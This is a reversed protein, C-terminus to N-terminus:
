RDRLHYVTYMDTKVTSTLRSSLSNIIDKNIGLNRNYCVIYKPKEKHIYELIENSDEDHVILANKLLSPISLVIYHSEPGVERYDMLVKDDKDLHYKLYDAVLMADSSCMPIILGKMLYCITVAIFSFMAMDKFKFRSTARGLGYISLPIMLTGFSISYLYDKSIYMTATGCIFFLLLCSFIAAYYKVIRNGRFTFFLGVIVLLYAVQGFSDHLIMQWYFLRKPLTFNWSLFDMSVNAYKYSLITARSNLWLLPFILTIICFLIRHGWRKDREYSLLIPIFLVFLWAEYRLMSAFILFVASILLLKANHGLIYKFFFYFSCLLFFLFIIESLSVVSCLIHIPYFILLCLALNAIREGFTIHILKYFPILSLIGFIFSIFKPTFFPNNYIKLGIGMLYFHLPLWDPHPTKFSINDLWDIALFVRAIADAKCCNNSIVLVYLRLMAAIVILIFLFIMIYNKKQTKM